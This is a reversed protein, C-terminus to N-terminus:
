IYRIKVVTKIRWVDGEVVAKGSEITEIGKTNDDCQNLQECIGDLADPNSRFKNVVSTKNVVSVSGENENIKKFCYVSVRDQFEPTGNKQLFVGKAGNAFYLCNEKAESVNQVSQQENTQMGSELRTIRDELKKFRDDLFQGLRQLSKEIQNDPM